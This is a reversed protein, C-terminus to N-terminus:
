CKILLCSKIFHIHKNNPIRRWSKGLAINGWGVNGAPWDTKAGGGGDGQIGGGGLAFRMSKAGGGGGEPYWWYAYWCYACGGGGGGGTLLWEMLTENEIVPLFPKAILFSHLYNINMYISYNLNDISLLM